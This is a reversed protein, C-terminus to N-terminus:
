RQIVIIGYNIKGKAFCNLAGSLVYLLWYNSNFIGNYEKSIASAKAM